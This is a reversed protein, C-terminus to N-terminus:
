NGGGHAYLRNHEIDSNCRICTSLVKKDHWRIYYDRDSRHWGVVCLFKGIRIKLTVTTM